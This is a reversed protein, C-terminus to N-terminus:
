IRKRDDKLREWYDLYEGIENSPINELIFKAVRRDYKSEREKDASVQYMEAIKELKEKFEKKM